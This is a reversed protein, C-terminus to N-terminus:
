LSTPSTRGRRAHAEFRSLFRVQADSTVWKPNVGRVRDLAEIASAGAWILHCALITGTRGQGARCHVAVVQGREVRRALQDCWAAALESTPAMMDDLPFHLPEIGAQTLLSPAVTATEEVTILVQVGLRLLGALDEEM